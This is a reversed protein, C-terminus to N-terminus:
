GMAWRSRTVASGFRGPPTPTLLEPMSGAVVNHNVIGVVDGKQEGVEAITFRGFYADFRSGDTRCIQVSLSGSADYVILGLSGSRVVRDLGRRGVRPRELRDAAM